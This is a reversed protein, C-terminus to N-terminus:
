GKDEQARRTRWMGWAVFMAWAMAGLARLDILMEFRPALGLVGVIWPALITAVGAVAITLGAIQGTKRFRKEAKTDVM